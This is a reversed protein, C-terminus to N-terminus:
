SYRSLIIDSYVGEREGMNMESTIPKAIIKANKFFFIRAFSLAQSKEVLTQNCSKIRHNLM